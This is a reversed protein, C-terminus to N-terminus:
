RLFRQYRELVMSIPLKLSQKRIREMERDYYEEMADPTYSGQPYKEKGTKESNVVMESIGEDTIGPRLRTLYQSIIEKAVVVALSLPLARTVALPVMGWSGEVPVPTRTLSHVAIAPMFHGEELTIIGVAKVTPTTAVMVTKDEWARTIDIYGMFDKEAAM